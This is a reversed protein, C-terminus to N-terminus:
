SFMTVSDTSDAGFNDVLAHPPLLPCGVPAVISTHGIRGCRSRSEERGRLHGLQEPDIHILDHREDYLPSEATSSEAGWRAPPHFLRADGVIDSLLGFVGSTRREPMLCVVGAEGFHPPMLRTRLASQELHAAM